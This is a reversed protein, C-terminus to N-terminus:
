FVLQAYGMSGYTMLVVVGDEVITAVSTDVSTLPVKDGLLSQGCVYIEVGQRKLAALVPLNPNDVGHKARYAANSLVAENGATTHFVLVFKVNAAPVKHAALTNLESGAMNVAPVLTGPKDAGSRSEFVVHYVHKDDALFAGKPVAVYPDAGPIPQVALASTQGMAPMTAATALALGLVLYRATNTM